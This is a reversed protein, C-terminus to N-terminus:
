MSQVVLGTFYVHTITGSGLMGNLKDKVARQLQERAVVGQTNEYTRTSLLANLADLIRAMNGNVLQATEKNPSALTIDAVLYDTGLDSEINVLIQDLKTEVLDEQLATEKEVDDPPQMRPALVFTALGAGTGLGLIAVVIMVILTVPFGGGQKAGSQRGDAGEPPPGADGAM